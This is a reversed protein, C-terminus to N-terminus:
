IRLRYTSSGVTTATSPRSGCPRRRSPLGRGTWEGPGCIAISRPGPSCAPGCRSWGTRLKSEPRDVLLEIARGTSLHRGKLNTTRLKMAAILECFRGMERRTVHRPLGRDRRHLSRPRFQDRLARYVTAASVGHLDACSEILARRDPSRAPLDELRGRLAVLTEDSPRKRRM